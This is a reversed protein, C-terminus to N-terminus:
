ILTLKVDTVGSFFWDSLRSADLIVLRALHATRASGAYLDCTLCCIYLFTTQQYGLIWTGLIM